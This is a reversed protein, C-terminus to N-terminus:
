KKREIRLSRGPRSERARELGPHRKLYERLEAYKGIFEPQRLLHPQQILMKELGPHQDLMRDFEAIQARTVPTASHRALELHVFMRPRAALQAKFEPHRALFQTIQPHNRQFAPNSMIAPEERLRAEISPHEDLFSEFHYLEGATTAGTGTPVPTPPQDGAALCPLACFMGLAAVAGLTLRIKRYTSM